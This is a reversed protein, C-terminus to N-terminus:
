TSPCGSIAEGHQLYHTFKGGEEPQVEELCNVIQLEGKKPNYVNAHAKTVQNLTGTVAMSGKGRLPVGCRHCHYRAQDAFDQMTLRWWDPTVPVGLDPYDPEHQHIIAQAGAIECFWARLEGRFVGIMASWHQNIDCTSILKWRLAENDILDMMAVYPPSHRSDRELGFPNSEPWDRLMEDYASKNCHVNLNSVAPNFTNRCLKGHGFLKNSWLGRRKFPIHKKLISCLEPFQPHLCPNGGFMGAIGFYDKLSICAEEFQEPTIFASKGSINSAQTCGICARDCARTVWIQIVGNMPKGKRPQGPSIMKSLAKQEDM